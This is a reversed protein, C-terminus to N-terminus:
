EDLHGLYIEIRDTNVTYFRQTKGAADTEGHVLEGSSLKATYYTDALPTGAGDILLFQEDFSLRLSSSVGAENGVWLGQYNLIFGTPIVANNTNGVGDINNLSSLLPCGSSTTMGHIVRSRGNPLRARLYGEVIECSNRCIMLAGQFSYPLGRSKCADLGDAVMGGCAAMDGKRIWGVIKM